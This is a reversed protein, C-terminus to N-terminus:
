KRAGRGKKKGASAGSGAASTSEARLNATRLEFAEGSDLKVTYRKQTQDENFHFSTQSSASRAM